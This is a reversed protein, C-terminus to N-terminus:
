VVVGVQTECPCSRYCRACYLCDKGIARNRTIAGYPCAGACLGCDLERGPTITVGRTALRSCWALLGGYPCLYRCYPRGVFMGLVLFASGIAMM